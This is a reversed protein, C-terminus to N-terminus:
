WDGLAFVRVPTTVKAALVNGAGALLLGSAIVLDDHGGKPACVRGNKDYGFRSMETLTMSDHIIYTPEIEWKEDKRRGLSAALTNILPTRTRVNTSYGLVEREDDTFYTTRVEQYINDYIKKAANTFSQGHGSSGTEPILLANNYYLCMSVANFVLERDPEVKAQYVCVQEVVPGDSVKGVMAVCYDNAQAGGAADVSVVYSAGEVPKQYMRVRGTPHGEFKPPADEAPDWVMFGVRIGMGIKRISRKTEKAIRISITNICDMDFRSNGHLFFAQEETSPYQAYFAFRDVDPNEVLFDKLSREYWAEDRTPDDKWSFFHATLRNEGAKAKQYLHYFFNEGDGNAIIIAMGGGDFSPQVLHWIRTQDTHAAFEDLIFNGSKGQVSKPTSTLVELRSFGFSVNETADAKDQRRVNKKGDISVRANREMARQTMWKPLRDKTVRLRFLADKASKEDKSVIFWRSAEHFLIHWLAFHSSLTTVGLQRAKVAVTSTNKYWQALLDRQFPWLNWKSVTGDKLVIYGYKDLFYAPDSACKRWELEQYAAQQRDDGEGAELDALTLSLILGDRM